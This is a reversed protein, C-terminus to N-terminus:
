ETEIAVPSTLVETESSRGVLYSVLLSLVVAPIIFGAKNKVPICLAILGSLLAFMVSGLAALLWLSRPAVVLVLIMFVVFCVGSAWLFRAGASPKEPKAAPADAVEARPPTYPNENEAM